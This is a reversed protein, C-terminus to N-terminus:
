LVLSQYRLTTCNDGGCFFFNDIKEIPQNEHLKYLYHLLLSSFEFPHHNM